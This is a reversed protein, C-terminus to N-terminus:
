EDVSLAFAVDRATLPGAGIPGSCMRDLGRGNLDCPLHGHRGRTLHGVEHVIGQRRASPSADADILIVREEQFACGGLSKGPAAECAVQLEDHAVLGLRYDSAAEVGVDAWAAFAYERLAQTEASEATLAEPHRGTGIEVDIIETGCASLALALVALRALM